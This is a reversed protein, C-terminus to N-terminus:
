AIKRNKFDEAARCAPCVSGDHPILSGIAREVDEVSRALIYVGGAARLKREFEQQAPSQIGRRSKVEIGVHRGGLVVVIDPLGPTAVPRYGGNPLPTPINNQRYHFIRKASLWDLITRQIDSEKEPAM